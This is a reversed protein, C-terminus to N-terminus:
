RGRLRSLTEQAIGLFSAIQNLPVHHEITPQRRLLAEYRERASQFQLSLSREVLALLYAENLLRGFREWTASSAYLAQLRAYSVCYADLDTVALINFHSPQRPLFSTLDTMVDGAFSFWTTGEMGPSDYYHRAIGTQLFYVENCVQGAQHVVTNKPVRCPAVVAAFQAYEAPTPAVFHEIFPQLPALGFASLVEAM